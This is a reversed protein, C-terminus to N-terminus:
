FYYYFYTGVGNSFAISNIWRLEEDTDIRVFFQLIIDEMVDRLLVM